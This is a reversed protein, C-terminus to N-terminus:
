GFPCPNQKDVTYNIRYAGGRVILWNPSEVPYPSKKGRATKGLYRSASEAQAAQGADALYDRMQICANRLDSYATAGVIVDSNREFQDGPDDVRQYREGGGKPGIFLNGPLWEYVQALNDFGDPPPRDADHQYNREIIEDLINIVQQRDAPVLTMNYQRVSDRMGQLLAKGEGALENRNVMKNWFGKLRNDPIIHHRMVEVPYQDPNTGTMTLSTNYRPLPPYPSGPRKEPMLLNYYEVANATNVVGFISTTLVLAPAAVIFTIRKM